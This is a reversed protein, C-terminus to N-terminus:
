SDGGLGEGGDAGPDDDSSSGPAGNRVGGDDTAYGVIGYTQFIIEDEISRDSRVNQM